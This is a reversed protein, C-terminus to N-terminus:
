EMAAAGWTLEINGLKIKELLDESTSSWWEFDDNSLHTKMWENLGVNNREMVHRTFPLATKCGEFGKEEMATRINSPLGELWGLFIRMLLAINRMMLGQTIFLHRMVLESCEKMGFGKKGQFSTLFDQNGRTANIM